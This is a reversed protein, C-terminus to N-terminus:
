REDNKSWHNMVSANLRYKFGTSNLIKEKEIIEGNMPLDYKKRSEPRRLVRIAASITPEGFFQGTGNHIEAQLEWFAWPQFDSLCKLVCAESTLKKM